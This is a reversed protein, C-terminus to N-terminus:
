ELQVSERGKAQISKRVFGHSVGLQARKFYIFLYLAESFQASAGSSGLEM